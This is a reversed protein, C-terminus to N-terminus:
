ESRSTLRSGYKRRRIVTYSIGWAILFSLCLVAMAILLRFAYQNITEGRSIMMWSYIARGGSGLLGTLGIVFASNMSLRRRHPNLGIVGCFFIPIGFIMPAFQTPLRYPSGCLGVFALTCLLLGFVIGVRAMFNLFPLINPSGIIVVGFHDSLSLQFVRFLQRRLLDTPRSPM